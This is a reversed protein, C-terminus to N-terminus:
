CARRAAGLLVEMWAAEVGARLRVTVGSPWTVEAAWERFAPGLRPASLTVERFTTGLARQRKRHPLLVARRRVPSAGGDVNVTQARREPEGRPGERYLWRQLTKLKLGNQEAFQAQTLGSSRFRTVWQMREPQSFYKRRRKTPLKMGGAQRFRGARV